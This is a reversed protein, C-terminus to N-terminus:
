PKAAPVYLTYTFAIPFGDITFRMDFAAVNVTLPVVGGGVSGGSSGGVSGSFGVASSRLTLTNGEIMFTVCPSFAIALTLM